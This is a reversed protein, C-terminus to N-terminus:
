RSAQVVQRSFAGAFIGASWELLGVTLLFTLGAEDFPSFWERGIRRDRDALGLKIETFQVPSFIPISPCGAPLARWGFYGGVM